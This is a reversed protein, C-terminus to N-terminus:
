KRGSDRVSQPDRRAAVKSANYIEVPGFPSLAGGDASTLSGATYAITVSDSGAIATNLELLVTTGDGPKLTVASITRSLMGSKMVTFSSPLSSPDKMRKNFTLEIHRGDERVIGSMFVPASGAPSDDFSTLGYGYPYLPDYPVDGVNIPVQRMSRPWSHSLRGTPAFDGFLVDAVGDGETGPLWAALIADSYHLIEDLILPRGSILIIIVPHGYSKMKKILSVDSSSLALERRDGQAEAYPTEGIVVVSYDAATDSFDGTESYDVTVAPAVRRMGALITTGVTTNGSGGRWSITWGGCQYGLNDVHTGAVLIRGGTKRLPLVGDKKKLLVISERVCRRAIARHEASGVIPLMSSDAYPHEFLGLAFKATLIRRVADDVRAITIRGNTVLSRMAARFDRYRTPLMVMDIGANISREVDQTYDPGLQDIGGWDSVLFGGFGLEGKLVDTLWHKSGHMKEGNISSYSVMISGVGYKLASLYGPLHIKRILTEDGVANGANKGDQTGGDALFHKACALVSTPSSLSEGQLGRVQVSGLQALEPTEGFGEYTRGWRIDRPVGIMPAFNWRIGTAAMEVATIRAAQEILAPDRTCGLDINHPFITAGYVNSHGHVADIGYIVPIKLRTALAHSQVSNCTTSWSLASNGTPPDSDGGSLVSGFGYASVDSMRGRLASLDVQMMQGIKEDLTMRGLLDAVRQHLPLSPNIYDQAQLAWVPLTWQLVVSAILTKAARFSFTM